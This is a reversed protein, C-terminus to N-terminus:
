FPKSHLALYKRLPSFPSSLRYFLVSCFRCLLVFGWSISQIVLIENDLYSKPYGLNKSATGTSRKLRVQLKLRRKTHDLSSFSFAVNDQQVGLEAESVPINTGKAKEKFLYKFSVLVVWM